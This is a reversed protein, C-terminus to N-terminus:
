ADQAEQVEGVVELGEGALQCSAADGGRCTMRGISVAEFRAASARRGSLTVGLRLRLSM